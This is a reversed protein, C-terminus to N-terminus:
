AIIASLVVSWPGRKGTNTIYCCHYYATKGVDAAAFSISHLFRGTIEATGFVLQSEALNAAGVFRELEIQQGGPLAQTHPNQPDAFRLTHQLHIIKDMEIDPAYSMPQVTTRQASPVTIRMQARDADTVLANFSLFEKIFKRLAHELNTRATDKAQVDAATRSGTNKAIAWAPDWIIKLNAIEDLRPAPYRWSVAPPMPMDTHMLIINYINQLFIDFDEDPGPIYDHQQAM